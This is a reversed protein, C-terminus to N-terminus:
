HFIACKHILFRFNTNIGICNLVSQMNIHFLRVYKKEVDINTKVEPYILTYVNYVDNAFHGHEMAM